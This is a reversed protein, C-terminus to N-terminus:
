CTSAVIRTRGIAVARRPATSCLYRTRRMTVLDDFGACDDVHSRVINPLQTRQVDGRGTVCGAEPWTAARASDARYGHDGIPVRTLCTATPSTYLSVRYAFATRGIVTQDGCWGSTRTSRSPM